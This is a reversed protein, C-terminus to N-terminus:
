VIKKRCAYDPMDFAETIPSIDDTFPVIMPAFFIDHFSSISRAAAGMVVQPIVTIPSFYKQTQVEQKVIRPVDCPFLGGFGELGRAMVVGVRKFAGDETRGTADVAAFAPHIMGFTMLAIFIHIKKM